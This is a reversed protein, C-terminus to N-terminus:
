RQGKPTSPMETRIASQVWEVKQPNTQMWVQHQQRQIQLYKDVSDHTLLFGTDPCCEEKGYVKNLIIRGLSPKFHSLEFYYPNEETPTPLPETNYTSFGSFDYIPHIAALQRKLAEFDNWKNNQYLAEWYFENVPAFVIKLDINKAKCTEVLKKFMAIKAPDTEYSNFFSYIETQLYLGPNELIFGLRIYENHDIKVLNTDAFYREPHLNHQVTEYSFKLTPLAFILKFFDNLSASSRNFREESYESVPTLNKSFAFFDLSLFVAKLDPQNHLAHEFYHYLEHFRAGAFASKYAPYGALKSYYSTEFGARARSSGLIIAKPKLCMIKLACEFRELKSPLKHENLSSIPPTGFYHFPDTLYNVSGIFIVAIIVITLFTILFKRTTNTHM